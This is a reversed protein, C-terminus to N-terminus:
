KLFIMKSFKFIKLVDANETQDQKSLVMKQLDEPMDKVWNGVIQKYVYDSIINTIIDSNVNYELCDLVSELEPYSKLCDLLAPVRELALLSRLQNVREAIRATLSFYGYDRRSFSYTSVVCDIMAGTPQKVPIVDLKMRDVYEQKAAPSNPLQQWKYLTPVIRNSTLEVINREWTERTQGPLGQMIEMM